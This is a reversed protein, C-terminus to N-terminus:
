ATAHNVDEWPFVALATEWTFDGRPFCTRWTFDLTKSNLDFVLTDLVLMSLFENENENRMLLGVSFNIPLRFSLEGRPDLGRLHVVENGILYGDYQLDASAVNFFHNKFDIPLKPAREDKWRDDYTGSFKRRQSWYGPIPGLGYELRNNLPKSIAGMDKAIQPLACRSESESRNKLGYGLGIPNSSYEDDKTACGGFALHYGIEVSQTPEIESVTWGLISKSAYRPGSVFCSSKLSGVEVSVEWGTSPRNGEAHAVPNKFYIDAHPKNPVLDSALELLGPCVDSFKDALILEAPVEQFEAEGNQYVEFQYSQKAVCCAFSIDHLDRQRFLMASLSTPNALFM